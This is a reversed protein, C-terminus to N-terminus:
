PNAKSKGTPCAGLREGTIVRHMVFHHPKTMKLVAEGKFSDGHYHITEHTSLAASATQCVMDFSVVDGVISKHEFRCVKQAHGHLKPLYDHKKLCRKFTRTIGNKSNGASQQMTIKWYGARFNFALASVSAVLFFLGVGTKVM